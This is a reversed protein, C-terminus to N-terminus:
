GFYGMCNLWGWFDDKIYYRICHGKRQELMFKIIELDPPTNNALASSPSTALAFAAAIMFTKKM